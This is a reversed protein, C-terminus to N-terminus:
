GTFNPDGPVPTAVEAVDPAAATPAAPPATTTPASTTTPAKTTTPAVTPAAAPATTATAAPATTAAPASTVAVTATGAPGVGAAPTVGAPNGVPVIPIFSAVRNINVTFRASGIQGFVDTVSCTVTTIGVKFSSGSAPTCSPTGALSSAAGYTVAIPSDTGSDISVNAPPIVVPIAPKNVIVNFRGVSTGFTGTVTCTVTTTGLPFTAGSAFDCTPTGSSATVAPYSVAVGAPASAVVTIDAPVNITPGGPNTVTVTFSKTVPPNVGDNATCLVSTVGIPFVTNSLPSCTVPTSPVATPQAYLVTAGATTTAPTVINSPVTIVPANPLSVSVTFSKEVAANGVPDSANCKVTTVGQPFSGGTLTGFDCTPVISTDDVDTASVPTAYTIAMPVATAVVSINAPVTIVPATKDFEARVIKGTGTDPTNTFYLANSDVAMGVVNTLGTVYSQTATGTGDLRARGITGNGLNAWYLYTSDSTVGVPGTAGTNFATAVPTPASLDAVSVTTSTLSSFTSWFIKTGAVDLGYSYLGTTIYNQNIATAPGAGNLTARGIGTGDYNAWYIFGGSVALGIPVQAGTIFSNDPVATSGDLLARGITTDTPGGNTWYIYTGDSALGSPSTLGSYLTSVNAGNLDSKQITGTPLNPWYLNTATVLVDRPRGATADVIVAAANTPSAANVSTLASAMLGASLSAAALLALPRRGFKRRLGPSNTRPPQDTRTM